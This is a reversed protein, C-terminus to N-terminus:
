WCRVLAPALITRGSVDLLNMARLIEFKHNDVLMLAAQIIASVGGSAAVHGVIRQPAQSVALFITVVHAPDCSIENYCASGTLCTSKGRLRSSRYVSMVVRCCIAICANIRLVRIQCQKVATVFIMEFCLPICLMDM